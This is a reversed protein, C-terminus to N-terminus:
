IRILYNYIDATITDLSLSLALIIACSIYSVTDEKYIALNDITDQRLTAMISFVGKEKLISLAIM